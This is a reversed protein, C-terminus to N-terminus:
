GGLRPDPAEWQFDDFTIDNNTVIEGNVIEIDQCFEMGEETAFIKFDVGYKKSLEQLNEPITGWAQRVDICIIFKNKEKSKRFVEYIDKSNVFMRRTNKIYLDMTNKVTIADESIEVPCGRPVSREVLGRNGQKDTGIEFRYDEYAIGNRIFNEIQEKTGRIKLVGESWNPM